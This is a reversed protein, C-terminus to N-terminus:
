AEPEIGLARLQAALKEARERELRVQEREQSLQEATELASRFREGNPTYIELTEATIEFQIGLRPSVWNHIPDIATLVNGQRTFGTFQHHNPNYIYYEEVGYRDYFQLKRVMEPQTNGPSLIEFV